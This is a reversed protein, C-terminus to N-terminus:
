VHCATQTTIFIIPSFGTVTRKVIRRFSQRRLIERFCRCVSALRIYVEIHPKVDSQTERHLILLCSKLLFQQRFKHLQSDMDVQVVSCLLEIMSVIVTSYEADCEKLFTM